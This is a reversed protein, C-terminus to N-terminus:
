MDTGCLPISHPANLDFCVALDPHLSNRAKEISYVSGRGTIM